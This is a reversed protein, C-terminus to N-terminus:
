FLCVLIDSFPAHFLFFISFFFSASVLCVLMDSLLPALAHDQTVFPILRFLAVGGALM